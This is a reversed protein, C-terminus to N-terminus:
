EMLSKSKKVLTEDLPDNKLISDLNNEPYATDNTSYSLDIQFQGYPVQKRADHKISINGTFNAVIVFLVCSLGMSIITM